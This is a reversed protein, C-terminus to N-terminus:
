SMRMTRLLGEILLSSDAQVQWYRFSSGGSLHTRDSQESLNFDSDEVRFSTRLKDGNVFETETKGTGSLSEFSGIEKESRNENLAMAGVFSESGTERWNTDFHQVGLTFDTTGLKRSWSVEGQPVIRRGSYELGAEWSLQNNKSREKKLVINAVVQQRRAEFAGTAGRTIDIREVNEAPIRRLLDKLSNSKTSPRENNILVNGSASGFGRRKKGEDLSFAPLREAMDLATVPQYIAFFTEDYSVVEPKSKASQAYGSSFSCLAISFAAILASALNPRRRVLPRLLRTPKRFTNTTVQPTGMAESTLPSDLEYQFHHHFAGTAFHVACNLM